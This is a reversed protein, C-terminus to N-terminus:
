KKVERPEAARAAPAVLTLALSLLVVIRTMARTM